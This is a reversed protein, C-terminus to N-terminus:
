PFLVQCYREWKAAGIQLIRHDPGWLRRVACCWSTGSFLDSMKHVLNKSVAHETHIRFRRQCCIFKWTEVSLSVNAELFTRPDRQDCWCIHWLWAFCCHNYHESRLLSSRRCFKAIMGTPSMPSWWSGLRKESVLQSHWCCGRKWTHVKSQSQFTGAFESHHVGWTTTTMTMM